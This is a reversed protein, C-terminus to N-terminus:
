RKDFLKPHLLKALVELGDALRPTPRDFLNSDVIFIRNNRVAPIDPWRQWEAKIQEFMGGRTMSTVIIVDPALALIQERSFRPYPVPGAALNKGGALGILEHIFTDTGVSVIPSIGIQFFVGQGTEAKSVLSKIHQIRSRMNEAVVSAKVDANLLGGINLVTQAVEELNKPDIAYVPIKLSELRDAVEKPNGDKVAICLDPRLALIRELDPHIYSGVKPLEAAQPPYDSFQTVGKLRHEQGLAFIIETISPALSVVRQPDDSVTLNRGLQDTVTKAPSQTGLLFFLGTIIFIHIKNKM